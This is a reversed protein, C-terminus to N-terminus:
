SAEVPDFAWAENFSQIPFLRYAAGGDAWDSDYEGFTERYIFFTRGDQHVHGVIVVGHASLDPAALAGHAATVVGGSAAFRLRIGAYLPGSREMAAHTADILPRPDFNVEWSPRYSFVKRARLAPLDATALRHTVGPLSPDPLEVTMDRTARDGGLSLIAAFGAMGYPIPTREIPDLDITLLPYDDATAADRARAYYLADLLRHDFGLEIAGNLLSRYRGLPRGARLTFWDIITSASVSMCKYHGMRWDPLYRWQPDPAYTANVHGVWAETEQVNKYPLTTLVHPLVVVEGGPIATRGEKLWSRRLPM